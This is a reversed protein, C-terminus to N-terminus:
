DPGVENGVGGLRHCVSCTKAFVQQGRGPDSTLKAAATRYTDIVKQRDQNAAGAFVKAARDRVSRDKHDLLRQRRVADIEAAPLGKKEVADLTARLWDDRRSLTELVQTRLAPGYGKWAGLLLDPVGGERLRGCEAIAAMQVEEPTQPVLLSALLAADEKRRD